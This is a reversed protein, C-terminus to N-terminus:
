VTGGKGKEKMFIRIVHTLHMIMIFDIEYKSAFFEPLYNMTHYFVNVSKMDKHVCELAEISNNNHYTITWYEKM